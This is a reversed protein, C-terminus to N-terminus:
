YDSIVVEPARLLMNAAELVHHIDPRDDSKSLMRKILEPVGLFDESKYRNRVTGKYTQIQTSFIGRKADRIQVSRDM